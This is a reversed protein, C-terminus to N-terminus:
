SIYGHVDADLIAHLSVIVGRGGTQRLRDLIFEADIRLHDFAGASDKVHVNVARQDPALVVDTAERLVVFHEVFDLPPIIVEQNLPSPLYGRGHRGRLFLNACKKM